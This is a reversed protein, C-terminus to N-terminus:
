DESASLATHGDPSFALGKVQGKHGTFSRIQQGTAVDWLIMTKDDSGSLAQSGDPSFAVRRVLATHGKFTRIPKGTALDWLILTKDGSGSLAQRGDPSFVVSSVGAKHGSFLRRTGPTYAAEALVTQAELRPNETLNAEVALTLVQDPNGQY